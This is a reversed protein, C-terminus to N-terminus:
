ILTEDFSEDLYCVKEPLSLQNVYDNHCDSEKHVRFNEAAHYWNRYERTILAEDKDHFITKLGKTEASMCTYCFAADKDLNYHLCPFEKYWKSSFTRCSKGFLAKPFDIYKPRNKELIRNFSANPYKSNKIHEQNNENPENDTHDYNSTEEPLIIEHSVQSDNQLDPLHTDTHSSTSPENRKFIAKISLWNQSAKQLLKQKQKEKRKQSPMDLPVLIFCFFLNKSISIISVSSVFCVSFQIGSM